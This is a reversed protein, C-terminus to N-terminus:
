RDAIIEQGHRCRDRCESVTRTDCHQRSISQAYARAIVGGTKFSPKAESDSQVVGTVHIVDDLASQSIPVTRVYFVNSPKEAPIDSPEKSADDSCAVLAFFLTITFLGISKTM